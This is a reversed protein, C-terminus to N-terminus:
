EVTVVGCQGIGEVTFLEVVNKPELSQPELNGPLIAENLLRLQVTEQASSCGAM